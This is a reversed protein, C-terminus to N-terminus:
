KPGLAWGNGSPSCGGELLRQLNSGM